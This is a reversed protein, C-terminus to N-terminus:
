SFLKKINFINHKLDISIYIETRGRKKMFSATKKNLSQLKFVDKDEGKSIEFLKGIDSNLIETMQKLKIGM